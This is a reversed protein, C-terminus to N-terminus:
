ILGPEGHTVTFGIFWLDKLFDLRQFFSAIILTAPTHGITFDSTIHNLTAVACPPRTGLSDPLTFASDIVAARCDPVPEIESENILFSWDIAGRTRWQEVFFRQVALRSEAVANEPELTTWLSPSNFTSKNSGRHPMKPLGPANIELM